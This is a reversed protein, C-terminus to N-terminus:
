VLSNSAIEYQSVIRSGDAGDPLYSAVIDSGVADTLDESRMVCLKSSSVHLGADDKYAILLAAGVIATDVFESVGIGLAKSDTFGTAQADQGTPRTLSCGLPICLNVLSNKDATEAFLPDQNYFQVCKLKDTSDASCKVSYTQFDFGQDVAQATIIAVTYEAPLNYPNTAGTFYQYFEKGSVLGTGFAEGSGMAAAGNSNRTSDYTVSGGIGLTYACLATVGEGSIQPIGMILDSNYDYSLFTTIDIDGRTIVFDRGIGTKFEIMSKNAVWQNINSNNAVFQNFASRGSKEIRTFNQIATQMGKYLATLNNLKTRQVAQAHSKPNKIKPVWTRTRQEGGARYFVAEGLKGSANGWFLSRKSMILFILVAPIHWCVVAPLRLGSAQVRHRFSACHVFLDPASCYRLPYSAFAHRIRPSQCLSLSIVIFQTLIDSM